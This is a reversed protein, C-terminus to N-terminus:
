LNNCIYLNLTKFWNKKLSFKIVFIFAYIVRILNFSNLRTNKWWADTSSSNIKFKCLFEWLTTPRKTYFLIDRFFFIISAYEWLYRM